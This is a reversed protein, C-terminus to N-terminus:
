TSPRRRQRGRPQVNQKISRGHKQSQPQSQRRLKQIAPRRPEQLTRNLKVLMATLQIKTTLRPKILTNMHILNEQLRYWHVGPPPSRHRGRLGHRLSDRSKWRYIHHTASQTMKSTTSAAMTLPMDHHNGSEDRWISATVWGDVCAEM